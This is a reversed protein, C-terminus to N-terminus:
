AFAQEWVLSLVILHAGNGILDICGSCPSVKIYFPFQLSFLNFHFLHQQSWTELMVM